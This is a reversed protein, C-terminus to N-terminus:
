AADHTVSSQTEEDFESLTEDFAPPALVINKIGSGDTGVIARVDGLQVLSVARGPGIALTELVRSQGAGAPLIGQRRQWRRLGLMTLVCLCLVIVTWVALRVFLDNTGNDNAPVLTSSQEETDSDLSFYPEHAPEAADNNVVPEAESATEPDSAAVAHKVEASPAQQTNSILQITDTDESSQSWLGAPVTSDPVSKLATESVPQLTFAPADGGGIVDDGTATGALLALALITLGARM